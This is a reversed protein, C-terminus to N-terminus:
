ELKEEAALVGIRQTQPGLNPRIEGGDHVLRQRAVRGVPILGGGLHRRGKSAKQGLEADVIGVLRKRAIESRGVLHLRLETLARKIREEVDARSGCLCAVYGFGM